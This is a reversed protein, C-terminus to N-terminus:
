PQAAGLGVDLLRAAQEVTEGSGLSWEWYNM